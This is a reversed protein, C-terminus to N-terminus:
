FFILVWRETTSCVNENEYTVEFYTSGKSLGKVSIYSEGTTSNYHKTCEVIKSNGSTVKYGSTPMKFPINASSNWFYLNISNGSAITIAGPHVYSDTNMSLEVKVQVYVRTSGIKLGDYYFTLDVNGYTSAKAVLTNGSYEQLKVYDPNASQMTFKYSQATRKGDEVMMIYKKDVIDYLKFHILYGFVQTWQHDIRSTIKTDGYHVEYKHYM